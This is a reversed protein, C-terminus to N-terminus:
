APFFRRESIWPIKLRPNDDTIIQIDAHDAAAIGMLPRKAKDRDGGAGFLCILRGQTHPRLSTLITELADPTHAYDIYIGAGHPHGPIPQLRGRPATLTELANKLAQYQDPTPPTCGFVLGIACLINHLQFGGVLPITVNLPENYLNLEAELGQATPKLNIIKLARGKEGYGIVAEDDWRISPDVSELSISGLMRQSSLELFYESDANMVAPAGKSLLETFLRAKARLYDEMDTHYDLHDHSLNSFGAAQLTVGDMRHQDLGHSSAELAVHTIGDEALQQLKHHLSIPDPSTLGGDLTGLSAAKYGLAQWIQKVFHVISSKGNTGTVAVIHEPQHPYFQAAIHALAKHPNDSQIVRVGSSLDHAHASLIAVAGAAIAQDIYANGDTKAGELAAFLFGPKVARSDQALGKIDTLDYSM